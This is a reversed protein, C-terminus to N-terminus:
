LDTLARTPIEYVHAYDTVNDWAGPQYHVYAVIIPVGTRDTTDYVNVAQFLKRPNRRAARVAIAAELAAMPQPATAHAQRDSDTWTILIRNTARRPHRTPV